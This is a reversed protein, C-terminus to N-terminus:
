IYRWKTSSQGGAGFLQLFDWSELNSFFSDGVTTNCVFMKRDFMGQFLLLMTLTHYRGQDFSFLHM